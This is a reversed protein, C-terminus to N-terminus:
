CASEWGSHWWPLGYFKLISYLKSIKVIRKKSGSSSHLNLPPCPNKDTETWEQIRLCVIKLMYYASLSYKNFLYVYYKQIFIYM